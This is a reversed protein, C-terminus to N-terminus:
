HIGVEPIEYLSKIIKLIADDEFGLEVPPRIFFEKTLSINSQVYAQSIDRLFLSLHSMSATLILILRQSMRQITSTQILMEIKKEDNYTQMMLRSKEYANATGINKIEDVFRSNFIRIERSLNATPVIEFCGKEFLDNIEKKRSEVFPASQLLQDNQFDNQLFISIDAEDNRYKMPLKRSRGRNRTSFPNSLFAKEIQFQFIGEFNMNIQSIGEPGANISIKEPGANESIVNEHDTNKENTVNEANEGTENRFYPKIVISRFDTTEYSMAIKCTENEIGLM